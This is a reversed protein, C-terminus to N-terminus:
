DHKIILGQGTTLHIVEVNPTRNVFEDCATKAGPCWTSGYDDCVLIGYPKMRPYFFELSATTPEALDVDIHVLSFSREAVESFRDPIWGPYFRTRDSFAALNKKVESLPCALDRAKWAYADSITPTDADSPKSLGEFSDFCHHLHDPANKRSQCILHSTAGRFVGCEATDGGLHSTALSISLMSFQRDSIRWASEDFEAIAKRYDHENAIWEMSPNYLRFGWRRALADVIQHRCNVKRHRDTAFLAGLLINLKNFM